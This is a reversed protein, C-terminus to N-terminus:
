PKLKEPLIADNGGSNRCVLVTLEDIKAINIGYISSFISKRYKVRSPLTKLIKGDSFDTLYAVRSAASEGPSLRQPADLTLQM